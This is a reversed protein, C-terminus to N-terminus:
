EWRASHEGEGLITKARGGDNVLQEGTILLCPSNTLTVSNEM